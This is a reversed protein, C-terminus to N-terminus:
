VPNAKQAAEQNKLRLKHRSALERARRVKRSALVLQYKAEFPTIRSPAATAAMSARTEIASARNAWNGFRSQRSNVLLAESFAGPTWLSPDDYLSVARAKKAAASVYAFAHRPNNTWLAFVLAETYPDNGALDAATLGSRGPTHYKLGALRKYLVADVIQAAYDVQLAAVAPQRGARAFVTAWHAALKPDYQGVKLTGRFALRMDAPTRLPKGYAVLGHSDADIGNAVFIKDWLAKRHEAWLRRKIYVMAQTLSGSRASWQMIGWSLLGRDYLNVSDFGGELSQTIDLIFLDRSRVDPNQIWHTGHVQLGNELNMRKLYNLQKANTASPLPLQYDQISIPSLDVKDSEWSYHGQPPGAPQAIRHARRHRAQAPGSLSLVILIAALAVRFRHREILKCQM